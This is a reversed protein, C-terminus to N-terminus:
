AKRREHEGLFAAAVVLGAVILALGAVVLPEQVGLVTLPPAVWSWAAFVGALAAGFAAYSFVQESANELSCPVIFGVGTAVLLVVGVVVAMGPEPPGWGLQFFPLTAATPVVVAVMGACFGACVTGLVYAAFSVPASRWFWSSDKNAGYTALPVIATSLATLLVLGGFAVQAIDPLLASTLCSLTGAVFAVFLTHRQVSRNRVMRKMAVSSVAGLGSGPARLRRGVHSFTRQEPSDPSAAVSIWVGVGALLLLLLGGTLRLAPEPMTNMVAHGLPRAIGPWAGGGTVLGSAVWALVLPPGALLAV